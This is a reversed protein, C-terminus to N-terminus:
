KQWLAIKSSPICTLSRVESMRSLPWSKWLHDNTSLSKEISHCFIKKPLFGKHRDLFLVAFSFDVFNWPEVKVSNDRLTFQGRHCAVSFLIVVAFLGKVM